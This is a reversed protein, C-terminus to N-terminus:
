CATLGLHRIPVFYIVFDFLSGPVRLVGMFRNPVAVKLLKRLARPAGDPIYTPGTQTDQDPTDLTQAPPLVELRMPDAPPNAQM